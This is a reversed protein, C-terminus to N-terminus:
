PRRHSRPVPTRQWLYTPEQVWVHVVSGRPRSPGLLQADRRPRPGARGYSRGCPCLCAPRRRTPAGVGAVSALAEARSTPRDRPMGLCPRAGRAGAGAVEALRPGRARPLVIVVCSLGSSIARAHAPMSPSCATGPPPPALCFPLRITIRQPMEGVHTSEVLIPWL